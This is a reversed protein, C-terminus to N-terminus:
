MINHQCSKGGWAFKKLHFGPISNSQTIICVIAICMCLHVDCVDGRRTWPICSVEDDEGDRQAMQHSVGEYLKM